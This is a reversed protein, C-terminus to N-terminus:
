VLNLVTSEIEDNDFGFIFLQGVKEELSMKELQEKIIDVKEVKEVEEIQGKTERKIPKGELIERPKKGCASLALIFFLLAM